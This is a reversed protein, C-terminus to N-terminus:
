DEKKKTFALIPLGMLVLVVGGMIYSIQDDSRSAGKTTGVFRGTEPVLVPVDGGCGGEDDCPNVPPDLEHFNVFTTSYEDSTEDVQEYEDSELEETATYEIVEANEDAKALGEWIYAWVESETMGEPLLDSSAAYEATLEVTDFLEGNAYLNIILTTPRKGDKDQVDDWIKIVTYSVEDVEYENTIEFVVEADKEVKKTQNDGTATLTFNEIEAGNEKVTYEGTPIRGSVECVAKNDTVACDDSFSITMEGDTGFDEPGTITFTLDKLATESVGIFTKEIVFSKALSRNNAVVLTKDTENWVYAESGSKAFTYEKTYTNKLTTEDVKSLASESTVKITADGDVLDYGELTDKEVIDYSLDDERVDEAAPVTVKIMGEEDTTYDEGSVTFVVGSMVEGDGDVKKIFFETEGEYVSTAETWENTIETGDVSPTWKGDVSKQDGVTDTGYVIFTGETAGLISKERVSYEIPEGDENKYLDHFTYTWDGDQGAFVDVTQMVEGNALLEVTISGPLVALTGQKWIKKITLDGDGNYLDPDHKNTIENDSISVAYKNDGTFDSQCSITKGSKTCSKAEAVTYDIAEGNRNKPLDKFSYDKNESELKEMAVYNSGDKVVVYLDNYDSRIGDRDDDDDWVKSASVSTTEYINKIKIDVQQEAQGEVITFVNNTYEVNYNEFKIDSGEPVWAEETLTYETGIKIPAAVKITNGAGSKVSFVKDVGSIKFKFEQGDPMKTEQGNEDVSVLEKEVHVAFPKASPVPFEATQGDNYTLVASKNLAFFGDSSAQDFVDEKMEVVYDTTAVYKDGQLEFEPKWDLMADGSGSVIVGQGMTDHVNAGSILSSINGAIEDFIEELEGSTATYDKGESAMANLVQNGLEGANFAITYLDGNNSNKYFNAESITSNGHNYYRYENGRHWYAYWMEYGDPMGIGGEGVRRSYDFDSASSIETTELEDRVNYPYYPIDPGGEQLHNGVNNIAYSYTPVGDSLLIINKYTATSSGILDVAERLGAQTFTGGTSSTITIGNIANSVASYDASFGTETTVDSGFSVVAIRNVANGSPLLQEALSDAASKAEVIRNNNMSNSRDIVLVTDSTVKVAPAEIKLTVKWKNVYGPVEEATKYLVIDNSPDSDGDPIRVPDPNKVSSNAGAAMVPMIGNGINIGVMAVALAMYLLRKLKM